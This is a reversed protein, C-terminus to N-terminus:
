WSTLPPRTAWEARPRTSRLAPARPGPRTGQVMVSITCSTNTALSGGSLQVTAGSNALSATGGCGNNTVAGSAVLGSSLTASFALGHLTINNAPNNITFTLSTTGNLPISPTAGFAASISPPAGVTLSAAASGGTSANSTGIASTTISYAGAIAGTVTVTFVCPTGFQLQSTTNVAIPSTLFSAAFIPSAEPNNTLSFSTSLTGATATVMYPGGAVGNATFTPATAVGQSNTTVSASSAFTGSAIGSGSPATFTVQVNPVPNNFADLLTVSLPTGFATGVTASQGTTPSATIQTPTDVGLLITVNNSTNNAVAVDVKGDGNFDGVAIAGPNTGTAPSVSEATFAGTGDGILVTVNNGGNNAVALDLKGDGNFDGATIGQPQTGAAPSASTAAFGGMGNGILITVNNSGNNATALDLKGDGNFDGVVISVPNAGM